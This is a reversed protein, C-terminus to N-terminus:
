YNSIFYMCHLAEVISTVNTLVLKGIESESNRVTYSKSDFTESVMSDTSVISNTCSGRPELKIITPKQVHEPSINRSQLSDSDPSVITDQMTADDSPTSTDFVTKTVTMPVDSSAEIQTPESLLFNDNTATQAEQQVGVTQAAVMDFTSLVRFDYRSKHLSKPLGLISLMMM